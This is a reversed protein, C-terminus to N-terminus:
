VFNIYIELCTEVSCPKSFAFSSFTKNISVLALSPCLTFSTRCMQIGEVLIGEPYKAKILTKKICDNKEDRIHQSCTVKIRVQKRFILEGCVLSIQRDILKTPTKFMPIISGETKQSSYSGDSGGSSAIM